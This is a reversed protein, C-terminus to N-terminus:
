TFNLMETLWLGDGGEENPLKIGLLRLGDYIVLAGVAAVQALGSQSLDLQSLSEGLKLLYRCLYATEKTSVSQKIAEPYLALQRIFRWHKDSTLSCAYLDNEALDAMNLYCAAQLYQHVLAFLWPATGKQMSFVEKFNFDYNKHTEHRLENFLSTALALTEQDFHALSSNANILEGAHAMATKLFDHLDWLVYRSQKEEEDSFNIQGIPVHVMQKAWDCGLMLLIATLQRFHLAQEQGTVYLSETFHYNDYRYYATALDRTLYLSQGDARQILAPSIEPDDLQILCEGASEYILGARELKDMIEPLMANYSSEGKVVDFQVGLKDYFAAFVRYSLDYLRQWIATVTEEGENLAKFAQLAQDELRPDRMAVDYFRASLLWLEQSPDAEIREDNGWLQYAVVLRGFQLGFDGLHNIRVAKYGVKQYLNALANGNITSRAHSISLPQGINPSSFDIPVNGNEGNNLGGEGLWTPIAALIEQTYVERNLAVNVYPGVAEVRCYAKDLGKAKITSAIDSAIKAPAQRLSKALQFVPFALDGYSVDQPRDLLELIQTHSLVEPIVQSLIDAFQAKIDTM